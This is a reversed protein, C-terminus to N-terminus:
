GQIRLLDRSTFPATDILNIGEGKVIAAYPPDKRTCNFDGTIIVPLGAGLESAKLKLLEASKRRAEKGIHDFHTNIVLFLENTKTDRLKGWSAVRTIAADWNKSGPIEPHESLWFTNQNEAKRNKKYLIASFEGKTKGDDSGSRYLQIRFVKCCTQLSIISPRRFEWYIPIM